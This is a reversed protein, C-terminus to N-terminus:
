KVFIKKGNVIYLGRPMGNLSNGVRQGQLNYVTMNDNTLKDVVNIGTTGSDRFSMTFASLKSGSVAEATEADLYARNPLLYDAGPHLLRLYGKSNKSLVWYNRWNAGFYNAGNIDDGSEVIGKWVNNGYADRSTTAFGNGAPKVDLIVKTYSEGSNKTSRIFVPVLAPVDNIETMKISGGKLGNNYEYTGSWEGVYMNVTQESPNQDSLKVDFPYYFTTWDYLHNNDNDGDEAVLDRLLLQLELTPAESIIWASNTNVAPTTGSSWCLGGMYGDTNGGVYLSGNSSDTGSTTGGYVCLSYQGDILKQLYFKTASAKSDTTVPYAANANIYMGTNGNKIVYIDHEPSVLGTANEGNIAGHGVLEFEWLASAHNMAEKSTYFDVSRASYMLTSEDDNASHQFGGNTKWLTFHMKDVDELWGGPGNLDDSAYHSVSRAVNRIRFFRPDGESATALVEEGTISTSITYTTGDIEYSMVGDATTVPIMEWDSTYGKSGRAYPSRDSNMGFYGNTVGTKPSFSIYRADGDSSTQVTANYADSASLNWVANDGDTTVRISNGSGANSVLSSTGGVTSYSWVSYNTPATVGSLATGNTNLYYGYRRNRLLYNGADKTPAAASAKKAVIANVLAKFSAGSTKDASAYSTTNIGQAEAEALLDDYSYLVFTYYDPNSSSLDERQVYTYDDSVAYWYGDKNSGSSGGINSKICVGLRSYPYPEITWSIGTTSFDQIYYHTNANYNWKDLYINGNTKPNKTAIKYNSGDAVFYWLYNDTHYYEDNSTGAHDAIMEGDNIKQTTWITRSGSIYVDKNYYLFQRNAVNMIVYYVPDATTSATPPDTVGAYVGLNGGGILMFLFLLLLRIKFRFM